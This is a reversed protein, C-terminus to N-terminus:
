PEFFTIFGKARPGQTPEADETWLRGDVHLTLAVYPTDDPDTDKCLRHAEVWTGLPINAENIFELHSTLSYLAELLEAETLATERVLREKHKFVEVFLLRPSFLRPPRGPGVRQRLDGRASLLCKFAINADVVVCNANM